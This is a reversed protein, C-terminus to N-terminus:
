YLVRKTVKFNNMEVSCFNKAHKHTHGDDNALEGKEGEWSGGNLFEEKLEIGRM